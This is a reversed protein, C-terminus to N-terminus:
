ALCRNSLKANKKVFKEVIAIAEPLSDLPIVDDEFDDIIIDLENNIEYFVGAEWLQKYDQEGLEIEQLDGEVCSDTDLRTMVEITSPVSIIKMM